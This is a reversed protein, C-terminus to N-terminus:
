KDAVVAIEQCNKCIKRGLGFPANVSRNFNHDIECLAEALGVGLSNFKQIHMVRGDKGAEWIYRM